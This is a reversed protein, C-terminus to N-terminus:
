AEHKTIVAMLKVSYSGPLLTVGRGELGKTVSDLVEKVPIPSDSPQGVLTFDLHVDIIKVDPRNDINIEYKHSM